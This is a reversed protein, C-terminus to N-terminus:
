ASHAGLSQVSERMGPRGFRGLQRGLRARASADRRLARDRLAGMALVAETSAGSRTLADALAILQTRQVDVDQIDGLCDQLKKLSGLLDRHPGPAYVSAYGDLLYRMRKCRRRLRHLESAPTQANVPAAAKMIRRYASRAQEAATELTSPGPVELAAVTDLVRRWQASLNTGRPSQLGARVARLASQRQRALHQRLPELDDLGALDVDGRGELDLLYVDLDRVPTTLGGLWAFESAYQAAPVESLLHGALALMSRTARVSTRLEHLYEIDIDALVGPRVTDIVDMWHRLVQALSEVAPGNPDLRLPAVAPQGPVHGAAKMAVAAATAEGPLPTMSDALMEACRKGDREYGRLPSVLVRLPLPRQNDGVLRQQDVRVRVRTKEEDDLVRLALSHVSVQALPLLARVGVVPAIAERVLSAPLVDVRRPWAKVSSPATIPEGEGACLLLEAGGGRRADRLTMNARHLRWDATDLCTWRSTTAPEAHVQYRTSLAAFVQGPDAAADFMLERRQM